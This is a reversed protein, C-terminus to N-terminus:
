TAELTPPLWAKWTDESEGKVGRLVRLTEAIPGSVNARVQVNDEAGSMVVVENAALGGIRGQGTILFREGEVLVNATAGTIPEWGPLYRYIADRVTARIEFKGQGESFPFD